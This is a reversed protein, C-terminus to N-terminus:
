IRPYLNEKKMEVSGVGGMMVNAFSVNRREVVDQKSDLNHGPVPGAQRTISM